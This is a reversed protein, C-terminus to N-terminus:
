AAKSLTRAEATLIDALAELRVAELRTDAIIAAAHANDAATTLSALLLARM